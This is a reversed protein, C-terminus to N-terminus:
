WRRPPRQGKAHWWHRLTHVLEDAHVLPVYDAPLTPPNM